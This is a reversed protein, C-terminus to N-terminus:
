ASKNKNPQQPKYDLLNGATISFADSDPSTQSSTMVVDGDGNSSRVDYRALMRSRASLTMVKSELDDVDDDSSDADKVVQKDEDDEDQKDLDSVLYRVM